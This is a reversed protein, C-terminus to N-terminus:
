LDRCVKPLFPVKALGLGGKRPAPPQPSCGQSVARPPGPLRERPSPDAFNIPLPSATSTASGWRGGCSVLLMAPAPGGLLHLVLDLEAFGGRGGAAPLGRQQDAARLARQGGDCPSGAGGVAVAGAGQAGSGGRRTGARAPLWRLGPPDRRAPSTCLPKMGWFRQKEPCKKDWGQICLSATARHGGGGTEREKCSVSGLASTVREVWSGRGHPWAAPVWGTGAPCHPPGRPAAQSCGPSGGTQLLVPCPCPGWHGADPM